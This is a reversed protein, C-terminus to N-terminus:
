SIYMNGSKKGPIEQTYVNVTVYVSYCHELQNTHM